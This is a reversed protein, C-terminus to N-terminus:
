SSVKMACEVARIIEVNMREEFSKKEESHERTLSDCLAESAVLRARLSASEEEAHRLVDTTLAREDAASMITALENEARERADKQSLVYDKTEDLTRGVDNLLDLMATSM